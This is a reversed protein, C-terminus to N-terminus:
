FVEEWDLWAIRLTILQSLKFNFNDERFIGTTLSLANACAVRITVSHSTIMLTGGGM